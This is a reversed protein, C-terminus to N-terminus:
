ALFVPKYINLVFNARFRIRRRLLATAPCLLLLFVRPWPRQRFQFSVLFSLALERVLSRAGDPTLPGFRRGVPPDVLSWTKAVGCGGCLNAKTGRAKKLALARM